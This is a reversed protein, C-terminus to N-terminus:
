ARIGIGRESSTLVRKGKTKIGLARATFGRAFIDTERIKQKKKGKKKKKVQKLSLKLKPRKPIRPKVKQILRLPTKIRRKYRLRSIVRSISREPFIEPQAQTQAQPQAQPQKLRTGERQRQRFRSFTLIRQRQKKRKKLITRQKLKPKELSRQLEFLKQKQKKRQKLKPKVRQLPVITYVKIKKKQRPRELQLLQQSPRQRQIQRELSPVEGTVKKVIIGTRAARTKPKSIRKKSRKMFRKLTLTRIDRSPDSVKRKFKRKFKKAKLPPGISVKGKTIRIVDAGSKLRPIIELAAEERAINRYTFSPRKGPKKPRLKRLRKEKFKGLYLTTRTPGLPERPSVIRFVKPLKSIELRKDYAREMGRRERFARIGAQAPRSPKFKRPVQGTVKRGVRIGDAFTTSLPTKKFAKPTKIKGTKKRKVKLRGTAARFGLGLAAVERGARGVERGAQGASEATAVRAGTTGVFAAGSVKGAVRGVRKAGKSLKAGKRAIVGIFTGAGLTAVTTLAEGKTEPVFGRITGATFEAKTERFKKRGPREKRLGLTVGFPTTGAVIGKKLGREGKDMFQKSIFEKERTRRPVIGGVKERIRSVFRRRKAGKQQEATIVGVTRGQGPQVATPGQTPQGTTPSPTPTPPAQRATRRITRAERRSTRRTTRAARRTTRRTTRAAKRTTRKTTRTAKRTTRKTKRTAKRTTRRTRRATRRSSRRSKRASRRSGM